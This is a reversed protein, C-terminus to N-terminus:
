LHFRHRQRKVKSSARASTVAYGNQDHRLLLQMNQKNRRQEDGNGLSFFVPSHLQGLQGGLDLKYGAAM